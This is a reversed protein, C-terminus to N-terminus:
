FDINNSVEPDLELDVLDHVEDGSRISYRLIWAITKKVYRRTQSFPIEEVFEDLPLQKKLELWVSVNHPGGNYGALALPLQGQFKVHLQSLYWAGFQMNKRREVLQSLDFDRIALANAVRRATHPMFQMLGRAGVWSVVLPDFASEVKMVGWLWSPRVRHSGSIDKVAAEMPMSLDGGYGLGAVSRILRYLRAEQLHNAIGALAALLRPALRGLRRRGGPRSCYRGSVHSIWSLPRRQQMRKSVPRLCSLLWRLELRAEGGLGALVLQALRHMHARQEGAEDGARALRGVYGKPPMLLTPRFRRMTSPLARREGESELRKRALAGYYTTPHARALRALMERGTRSRKKGRWSLLAMARWYRAARRWGRRKTLRGLKSVARKWRKTKFATYAYRFGITGLSSAGGASEYLRHAREYDGAESWVRAARAQLRARGAGRASKAREEISRAVRDFRGMRRFLGDRLDAAREKHPGKTAAPQAIELGEKYRGALMLARALDLRVAPRASSPLQDNSLLERLERVSADVQYSQLLGRCRKTKEKVSLPAIKESGLKRRLKKLEGVIREDWSSGAHSVAAERLVKAAEGPRNWRELAAAQEFLFRAKLDSFRTNDALERFAAAAMRHVAAKKFYRAQLRLALWWLYGEKRERLKWLVAAAKKLRGAEALARAMEIRLHAELLSGPTALASKALSAAARPREVARLVRAALLATVPHRRLSDCRELTRGPCLKKLEALAGGAM